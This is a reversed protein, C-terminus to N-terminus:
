ETREVKVVRSTSRPRVKPVTLRLLGDAFEAKIQDPDVEDPFRFTRSFPGHRRELRHFAEPRGAVAPRREGRVTLEDGLTQVVVDDKGLGPLELELVYADPTEFADAAPVWNGQLTAPEDLRDRSLTDDLLRNIRAQLELLEQLPDVRPAM